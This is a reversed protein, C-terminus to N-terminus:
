LEINRGSGDSAAEPTSAPRTRGKSWERLKDIDDATKSLPVVTEAATLLDDVTVERGDDKFSRHLADPVLADIEAGSFGATAAVLKATGKGKLIVDADRGYKRLAVALVERRETATPLDVFFMEDFRGKRLLASPLAAVDNATAVVFVAGAHDQMWSLFTGLFDSSVGGDGQPGTSGALAKDIEDIWLVCPAVTDATSFAKRANQESDGVWKSKLGGPDMRLLPLGWATAIAKATQSKGTGAPGLLFVGKPAPLGYERAKATLDEARDALWEKLVDLGGISDLGRPDPDYWTLVGSKAIVRKKEASVVSPDISRETVLSKAYSNEAEAASLGVAADIAAERAGNEPLADKRVEDSVSSLVDDLIVGMEERDPLPWDIVTAQGALEPPVETSSTLVVIARFENKASGQLKRALSRLSRVTQPDMWAHLDRFVYLARDRKSGVFDLAKMPDRQAEVVAGAGDTIGEACDWFRPEMKLGGAVGILAREVRLEEGSVVWLLTNRARLLAAVDQTAEEQRM